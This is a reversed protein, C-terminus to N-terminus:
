RAPILKDFDVVMGDRPNVIMRMVAPPVDRTAFLVNADCFLINMGSKFLGGVAPLKEKARPFKLDAPQTWVVSDKAEIALLTNSTGDSIDRFRSKKAGDFLTDPGTFVQYYTLGEGKVGLGLPEYLKPMMAILKKNHKSDWPEDLKFEDYLAQEGLYPLIAERWSLLPAKGDKGYIAHAPFTKHADHYAHMAVGIQKLNNVSRMRTADERVKDIEKFKAIQEPTLKEEGPKVRNLVLLM